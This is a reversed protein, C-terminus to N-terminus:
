PVRSPPRTQNTHNTYIRPTPPPSARVKDVRSSRPFASYGHPMNNQPSLTPQSPPEAQIPQLIERYSQKQITKNGTVAAPRLKILEVEADSQTTTPLGATRPAMRQTFVRQHHIAESISFLAYRQFSCLKVAATDHNKKIELITLIEEFYKLSILINTPLFCVRINQM